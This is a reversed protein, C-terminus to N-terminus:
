SQGRWHAVFEALAALDAGTAHAYPPLAEASVNLRNVWFTPLGFWRAGAADWGGFAAFAVQERSLGLTAPGLAYAQPDPKFSQVAHTSIQADFLDSLGANDLLRALMAPSYNSLPALRVGSDKWHQLAARTDPWPELRSYAEVLRERQTDTLSVDLSTAAFDLADRTVLRFDRYQRAAVRLWSYQFLRSRWVECLEAAREPTIAMAVGQVSRPDFLTFLDFCIARITQRQTSPSGNSTSPLRQAPQRAACAGLSAGAAAGLLLNLFHQRHMRPAHPVVGQALVRSSQMGSMCNQM